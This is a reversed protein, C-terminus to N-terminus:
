HYIGKILGLTTTEVQPSGQQYRTRARNLNALMDNYDSGFAIAFTFNRTTGATLSFPGFVALLRWDGATSIPLWWQGHMRAIVGAESHPDSLIDWYNMGTINFSLGQLGVWCHIPFDLRDRSWVTKDVQNSGIVNDMYTSGMGVLDFDDMRGIYLDTLTSATMNTVAYQVIFYDADLAGNWMMTHRKVQLGIRGHDTFFALTDHDSYVPESTPWGPQGPRYLGASGNVNVWGSVDPYGEPSCDAHENNCAWFDGLYLLNDNASFPQWICLPYDQYNWWESMSTFMTTALTGNNMTYLSMPNNPHNHPSKAIVLIGTLLILICALVICRKM